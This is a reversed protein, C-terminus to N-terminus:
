HDKHHDKTHGRRSAFGRGVAHSASVSVVLGGRCPCTHDDVMNNNFLKKICWISAICGILGPDICRFLRTVPSIVLRLELYVGKYVVLQRHRQSFCM